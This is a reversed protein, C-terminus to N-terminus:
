GDGGLRYGCCCRRHRGESLALRSNRSTGGFLDTTQFSFHHAQTSLFFAAPSFNLRRSQGGFIRQAQFLFAPTLLFLFGRTLTGLLFLLSNFDFRALLSLFFM